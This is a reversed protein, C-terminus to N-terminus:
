DNVTWEPIVISPLIEWIITNENFRNKQVWKIWWIDCNIFGARWISMESLINFKVYSNWLGGQWNDITWEYEVVWGIYRMEMVIKDYATLDVNTATGSQGCTRESETIHFLLQTDSWELIKM